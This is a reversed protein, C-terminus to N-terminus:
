KKKKSGCKSKGATSCFTDKEEETIVGLELLAESAHAVCSVYGGHNKWDNDCLCLQPISCGELNVSEGLPTELCQDMDDIVGDNDSDGECIYGIGNQNDDRQDPNFDYQCNDSDDLILDNDDDNDCVDGINDGETDIQNPNFIDDCNDIIQCVSDGDPDDPNDLPCEDCANGIGDIDIDDQEANPTNVCNDIDDAIGDNDFDAFEYIDCIGNSNSDLNNQDTPCPDCVDGFGDGDGNAQDENALFPCNDEEDIIGDEDTDDNTVVVPKGSPSHCAPTIRYENGIQLQFDDANDSACTGGSFSWDTIIGFDVSDVIVTWEEGGIGSVTIGDSCCTAYKYDGIFADSGSPTEVAEGPDDAQSVYTNTNSDVIRFNLQASNNIGGNQKGFIFGFTLDDTSTNQHIWTNAVYSQLNVCVPHGSASSYSYHQQGTQATEIAKVTAVKTFANPVTSDWIDVYPLGCSEAQVTSFPISILASLCLSSVLRKKFSKHKM